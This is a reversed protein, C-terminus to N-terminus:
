HHIPTGPFQPLLNALWSRVARSIAVAGERIAQGRIEHARALYYDVDPDGNADLRVSFNEQSTM